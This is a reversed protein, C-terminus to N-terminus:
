PLIIIHFEGFKTPSQRFSNVQANNRKLVVTKRNGPVSETIQGYLYEYIMMIDRDRTLVILRQKQWHCQIGLDKRLMPSNVM